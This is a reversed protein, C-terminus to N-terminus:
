IQTEKIVLSAPCRGMARPVMKHREKSHYGNLKESWKSNHIQKSNLERQSKSLAKKGSRLVAFANEATSAAKGRLVTKKKKEKSFLLKKTQHSRM